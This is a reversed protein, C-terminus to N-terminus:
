STLLNLVRNPSNEDDPIYENSFTTWEQGANEADRLVRNERALLKERMKAPSISENTQSAYAKEAEKIM